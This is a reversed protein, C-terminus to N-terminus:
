PSFREFSLLGSGAGGVYGLQLVIADWGEITYCLPDDYNEPAFMILFPGPLGPASPCTDAYRIYQELVGENDYYDYVESGFIQMTSSRDDMSRWWGQLGSLTNDEETSNTRSRVDYVASEVSIDGYNLIDGSVSILQGVEYTRLAAMVNQPTGAGGFAYWKYGDAHFACQFQGDYTECGQFMGNVSFPEGLAGSVPGSVKPTADAKQNAKPANSNKAAPPNPDVLTLKFATNDGTDIESFAESAYGRSECDAKGQITFANKDTCFYYNEGTFSGGSVTARYYFYRSKLDSGVLTKCDGQAITWWGESVWDGDSRYAIAVTQDSPASNCVEFKAFAPVAPVSLVFVVFAFLIRM